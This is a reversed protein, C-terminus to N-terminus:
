RAGPRVRARRWCCGVARRASPQDHLLSGPSAGLTAAVDEYRRDVHEFGARATRVLLPLGMAAMALVVAKWTFVVEIGPRRATPRRNRKPEVATLLILGTAVPAPRAAVLRDDRCRLTGLLSSSGAAVRHASGAAADAGHRRRRPPWPSGPSTGSTWRIVPGDACALIRVAHLNAGRCREAPLHSVAAGGRQECGATDIGRSLRHTSRPRAPRAVCDQRPTGGDRRDSLCHRRRRRRVRRGVLAGRVSVAPVVRAQLSEWLGEKELYERAYVGAPVAAPDGLAIRKYTPDALDKIGSFTRARDDPVVVALQNTLLDVRTGAALLGAKMVLDMQAGDASIFVDVPAGSLIQRALVNSAAFNFRIQDRGSDPYERAAATLADTLSVAAAVTIPPAAVAMRVPAAPMSVAILLGILLLM